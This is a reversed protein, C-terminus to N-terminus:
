QAEVYRRDGTRSYQRRGRRWIRQARMNSATMRLSLFRLPRSDFSDATAKELSLRPLRHSSAEITAM